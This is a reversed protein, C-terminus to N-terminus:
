ANDAETLSGKTSVTSKRGWKWGGVDPLDEGHEDIYPRHAILTPDIAQRVYAARSGPHPVRDIADRVLHCRDIDNFV